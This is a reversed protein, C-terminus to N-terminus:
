SLPTGCHFCHMDKPLAVRGCKPCKPSSVIVPPEGYTGLTRKAFEDALAGIAETCQVVDDSGCIDYSNPIWIGLETARDVLRSSFEPMPNGTQIVAHLVIAVYLYSLPTGVDPM